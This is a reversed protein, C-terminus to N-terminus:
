DDSDDNDPESMPRDGPIWIEDSERGIEIMHHNGHFGKTAAKCFRVIFILFMTLAVSLWIILSTNM